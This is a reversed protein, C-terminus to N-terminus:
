KIIFSICDKKPTPANKKGIQLVEVCIQQTGLPFLQPNIPFAGVTPTLTITAGVSMDNDLTKEFIIEAEKMQELDVTKGNVTFKYKLPTGKPIIKGSINEINGKFEGNTINIPRDYEVTGGQTVDISGGQMGSVAIVRINYDDDIVPDVNVECVDTFNGDKTRVTIKAKGVGVATVKGNADVEAVEENNTEWMVAKDEAKDPVVTATLTEVDGVEM